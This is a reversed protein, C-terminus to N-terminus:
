FYSPLFSPHHRDHFSIFVSFVRRPTYLYTLHGIRLGRGLRRVFGCSVLFFFCRARGTVYIYQFFSREAQNQTM